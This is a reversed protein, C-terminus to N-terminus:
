NLLSKKKKKKVKQTTSDSVARFGKVDATYVTCLDDATHPPYWM